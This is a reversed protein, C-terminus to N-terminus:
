CGAFWSGLFDFVDQVTVGDTQNFDAAISGAFWAGLFNFIDEVTAMGSNNFDGPCGPGYFNLDAGGIV